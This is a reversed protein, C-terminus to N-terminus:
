ARIQQEIRHAMMKDIRAQRWHVVIFSVTGLLLVATQFIWFAKYGGPDVHYHCSVYKHVNRQSCYAWQRYGTRLCEHVQRGMEFRSCPKCRGQVSCDCDEVCGGRGGATANDIHLTQSTLLISQDMTEPASLPSRNSAVVKAFALLAILRLLCVM